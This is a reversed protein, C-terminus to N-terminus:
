ALSINTLKNLVDFFFKREDNKEGDKKFEYM